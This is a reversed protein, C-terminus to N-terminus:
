EVYKVLEIKGEIFESQFGMAIVIYDDSVKDVAKQIAEYIEQTCELWQEAGVVRIYYDYRIAM